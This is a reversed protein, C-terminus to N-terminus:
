YKKQINEEKSKYEKSYSFPEIYFIGSSAWVGDVLHPFKKRAWAAVTAGYGSGWLIIPSYFAAHRRRITTILEAIDHLMQEATLFELNEFSANRRAM